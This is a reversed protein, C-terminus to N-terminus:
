QNKSIPFQDFIADESMLTMGELLAQAALLRDFPDKHDVAFQGALPTRPVRIFLEGIGLQLTFQEYQSDGLFPAVESWKGAQHKISM